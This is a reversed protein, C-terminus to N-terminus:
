FPNWDLPIANVSFCNWGDPTNALGIWKASPCCTARAWVLRRGAIKRLRDHLEDPPNPIGDFNRLQESAEDPNLTLRFAENIAVSVEHDGFFGFFIEPSVRYDYDFGPPDKFCFGFQSWVHAITVLSPKKVPNPQTNM